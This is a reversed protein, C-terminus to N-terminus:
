KDYWDAQGDKVMQNNVNLGDLYIECLYRGYAGKKAWGARTKISQIVLPKDKILNELHDRSAIGEPTIKYDDDKLEPAQIRALRFKVSEMGCHYGLRLSLWVTDGDYIKVYKADCWYRFTELGTPDIFDPAKKVRPM